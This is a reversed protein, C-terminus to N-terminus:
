EGALGSRVNRVLVSSKPLERLQEMVLPIEYQEAKRSSTIKHEIVSEKRYRQVSEHIALWSYSVFSISFATKWASGEESSVSVGKQHDEDERYPLVCRLVRGSNATVVIHRGEDPAQRSGHPKNGCVILGVLGWRDEGRCFPRHFKHEDGVCLTSLCKDAVFPDM